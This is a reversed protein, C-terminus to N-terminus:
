AQEEPKPTALAIDELADMAAHVGDNWGEGYADGPRPNTLLVGELAALYGCETPKEVAPAPPAADLIALWLANMDKVPDPLEPTSHIADLMAETPEVPVLRWGKPVVGPGKPVLESQMQRDVWEPDPPCELDTLVQQVPPATYLPVTYEDRDCERAQTALWEARVASGTRPSAYHTPETRPTAAQASALASLRNVAEILDPFTCGHLEIIADKIEAALAKPTQKETTM